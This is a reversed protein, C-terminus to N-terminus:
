AQEEEASRLRRLDGLMRDLAANAKPIDRLRYTKERVGDIAEEVQGAHREIRWALLAVSGLMGAAVAAAVGAARIAQERDAASINM